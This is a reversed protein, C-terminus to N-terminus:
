RRPARPGRRPHRHRGAMGAGSRPAASSEGARDAGLRGLLGASLRPPRGAQGPSRDPCPQGRGWRHHDDAAAPVGAAARRNGHGGLAIHDAATNSGASGRRLMWALPEGGTNDCSALLPHHGFGKFNAEALGEGLARAGRHCGALHLDGRLVKDALRVGPLTGHRATVPAWAHRRATSVAATVRM